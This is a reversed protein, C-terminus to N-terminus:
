HRRQLNEIESPSTGPYPMSGAVGAASALQSPTFIMLLQGRTDTGPDGTLKQPFPFYTREAYRSFKDILPKVETYSGTVGVGIHNADFTGLWLDGQWRPDSLFQRRPTPVDLVRQREAEWPTLKSLPLTLPHESM